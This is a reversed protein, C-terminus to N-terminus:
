EVFIHYEAACSVLTRMKKARERATSDSAYQEPLSKPGGVNGRKDPRKPLIKLESKKEKHTRTTQKV